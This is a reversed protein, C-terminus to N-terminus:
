VLFDWFLLNVEEWALSLSMAWCQRNAVYVLGKGQFCFPERWLLKWSIQNEAGQRRGMMICESSLTMVVSKMKWLLPIEFEWVSINGWTLHWFWLGWCTERGWCLVFKPLSFLKNDQIKVRSLSRIQLYPVQLITLFDFLIEAKLLWQHQKIFIIHLKAAACMQQFPFVVHVTATSTSVCTLAKWWSLPHLQEPPVCTEAICSSMPSFPSVKRLSLQLSADMGENWM